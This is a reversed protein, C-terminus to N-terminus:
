RPSLPPSPSIQPPSRPKIFLIDKIPIDVAQDRRIRRGVEPHTVSPKHDLFMVACTALRREKRGLPPWVLALEVLAVVVGDRGLRGDLLAELVGERHGLELRHSRARQEVAALVQRRGVHEGLLDEKALPLLGVEALLRGILRELRPGDVAPVVVHEDAAQVRVLLGLPLVAQGPVRELQRKGHGHGVGHELAHSLQKVGLQLLANDHRRRVPTTDVDLTLPGM